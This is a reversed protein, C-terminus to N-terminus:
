MGSLTMKPPHRAKLPSHCNRRGPNRLQFYAVLVRMLPVGRDSFSQMEGLSNTRSSVSVKDLSRNGQLLSLSGQAQDTRRARLRVRLLSHDMRLHLFVRFTSREMMWCILYRPM